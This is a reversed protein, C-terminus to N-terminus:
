RPTYFDLSRIGSFPSIDHRLVCATEWCQRQAAAACAWIESPTTFIPVRVVLRPRRVKGPGARHDGRAYPPSPAAVLADLDLDHDGVVLVLSTPAPIARWHNSTSLTSRDDVHRSRGDHQPLGSARSFFLIITDVPAVTSRVPADQM